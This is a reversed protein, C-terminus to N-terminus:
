SMKLLLRVVIRIALLDLKRSINRGFWNLPPAEENKNFIIKTNKM